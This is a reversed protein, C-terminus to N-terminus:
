AGADELRVVGPRLSVPELRQLGAEGDRAIDVRYGNRMLVERIMQLISDEDDIVLVRKGVGERTTTQAPLPVTAKKEAETAALRSVPLEIVFTAGEGEKSHLRSPAAM